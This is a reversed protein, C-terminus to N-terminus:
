DQKNTIAGIIKDLTKLITNKINPLENDSTANLVNKIGNLEAAFDLNVNVHSFPKNNQEKIYTNNIVINPEKKETEKKKNIELKIREGQRYLLLYQLGDYTITGDTDVYGFHKFMDIYLILEEDPKNLELCDWSFAEIKEQQSDYFDSHFDELDRLVELVEIQEITLQQHTGM